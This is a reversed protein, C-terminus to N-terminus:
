QLLFPAGFGHDAYEVEPTAHSSGFGLEYDTHVTNTPM